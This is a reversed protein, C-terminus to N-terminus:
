QPGEMIKIALWGFMMVGFAISVAYPLIKDIITTKPYRDIEPEKPKSM